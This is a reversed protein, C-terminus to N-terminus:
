DEFDSSLIYQPLYLPSICLDESIPLLVKMLVFTGTSTSESKAAHLFFKAGDSKFRQVDTAAMTM